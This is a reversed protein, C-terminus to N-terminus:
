DAWNPQLAPMSCLLFLTLLRVKAVLFQPFPPRWFLREM